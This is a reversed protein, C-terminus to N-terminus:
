LETCLSCFGALYRFFCTEMYTRHCSEYCFVSIMADFCNSAIMISSIAAIHTYCFFCSNQGWELLPRFLTLQHFDALDCLCILSCYIMGDTISLDIENQM